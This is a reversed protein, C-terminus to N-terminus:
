RQENGHSRRASCSRGTSDIVTGSIRGFITQGSISICAFTVMLLVGCLHILSLPSLRSISDQM